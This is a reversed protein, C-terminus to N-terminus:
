ASALHDAEGKLNLGQSHVGVWHRFRQLCLCHQTSLRYGPMFLDATDASDLRNEGINGVKSMYYNVLYGIAAVVIIM